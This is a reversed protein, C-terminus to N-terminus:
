VEEIELIEDSIMYSVEDLNFGRGELETEIFDIVLDNDCNSVNITFHNISGTNYNLIYIEKM